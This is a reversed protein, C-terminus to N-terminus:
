GAGRCYFVLPVTKDKPLRSREASVREAPINIAGPVHGARYEEAPRVDIVVPRKALPMREQLQEASIVAYQALATDALILLLSWITLARKTGMITGM